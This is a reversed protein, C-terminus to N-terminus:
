LLKEIRNLENIIQSISYPKILYPKYLHYEHLYVLVFDNINQCFFQIVYLPQNIQRIIRQIVFVEDKIGNYSSYNQLNILANAHIKVKDGIKYM